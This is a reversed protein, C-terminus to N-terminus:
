DLDDLGWPRDDTHGEIHRHHQPGRAVWDILRLLLLSSASGFM